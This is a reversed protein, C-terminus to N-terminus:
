VSSNNAPSTVHVGAGQQVNIKVTTTAANGCYDWQEVVVNYTGPNLNISTNLKAGGVTYVLWNATPYIGMTAVGKACSTSGTAAFNVSTGVTSGNAPTSVTVGALASTAAFSVVVMATAILAHKKMQVLKEGTPITQDPVPLAM